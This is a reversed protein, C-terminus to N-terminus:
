IIKDKRVEYFKSAKTLRENYENYTRSRLLLGRKPIFEGTAGIAAEVIPV